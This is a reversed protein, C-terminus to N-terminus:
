VTNLYDIASYTKEYMNVYGLDAGYIGLNLAKSYQSNYKKENETNNLLAEKYKAGSNQILSSFEIPSPISEIINNLEDDSLSSKLNSVSDKAPPAVPNQEKSSDSSKCGAFVLVIGLIVILNKM